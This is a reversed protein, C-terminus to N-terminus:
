INIDYLVENDLLSELQEIRKSIRPHKRCLKAILYSNEGLSIKQLLYLASKLDEGYGTEFAFRDARLENKRSNGSLIINGVFLILFVTLNISMRIFLFLTRFLGSLHITDTDDLDTFLLDLIMFFFNVCIIYITFFGNGIKNLVEATTNGYYIHAFEHLIVGQLEEETFTAIAGKTVAVTHKGIAWANISMKDIIYLEIKPLNPYVRLADTKVSEFLPLLYEKEEKTEIPRVGNILKLIREGFVLAVFISVAYLIVCIVFAVEESILRHSALTLFALVFYFIFWLIYSINHKILYLIRNSYLVITEATLNM